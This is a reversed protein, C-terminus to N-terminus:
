YVKVLRVEILLHESLEARETEIEELAAEHDRLQLSISLPRM